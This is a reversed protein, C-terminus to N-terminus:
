SVLLKGGVEGEDKCLFSLTGHSSYFGEAEEYSHCSACSSGCAIEGHERVLPWPKMCNRYCKGSHPQEM